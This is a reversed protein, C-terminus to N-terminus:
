HELMVISPARLGNPLYTHATCVLEEKVGLKVILLVAFNAGVTKDQVIQQMSQDDTGSPYPTFSPHSHWEGIYNFRTYDHETENFYIRLKGIADEIRRLFFSFSGRRHVTLKRVVFINPGTHEGMMIGGIEHRGAKILATLLVSHQDAPLMLTLM